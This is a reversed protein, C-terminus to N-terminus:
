EWGRAGCDRAWQWVALGKEDMTTRLFEANVWWETKNCLRVNSTVALSAYQRAAEETKFVYVPQM